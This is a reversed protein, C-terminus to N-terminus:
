RSNSENKTQRQLQNLSQMVQANIQNQERIMKENDGKYSQVEIRLRRATEILTEQEGRGKHGNSKTKANGVSINKEEAERDHIFSGEGEEMEQIHM